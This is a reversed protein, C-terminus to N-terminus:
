NTDDQDERHSVESQGDSDVSLSTSNGDVQPIAKAEGMVSHRVETQNGSNVSLDTFYSDVQPIAERVEIQVQDQQSQGKSSKLTELWQKLARGEPWCATGLLKFGM